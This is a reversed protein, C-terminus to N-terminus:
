FSCKSTKFFESCFTLIHLIIYDVLTFFIEVRFAGYKQAACLYHVNCFGLGGFETLNQGNRNLWLIRCRLNLNKPQYLVDNGSCLSSSCGAVPL